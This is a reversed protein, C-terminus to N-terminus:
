NVDRTWPDAHHPPYASPEIGTSRLLHAATV